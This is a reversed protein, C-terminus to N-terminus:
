LTVGTKRAVWREVNALEAATLLRGICVSSYMLGNYPLSTGGRRGFYLAYNGYNGGLNDNNPRTLSQAVGNKRIYGVEDTSLARDASASIVATEAQPFATSAATSYGSPSTGHSILFAQNINATGPLFLCFSDNANSDTSLEVFLGNAVTDSM